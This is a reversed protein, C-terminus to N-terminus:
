DDVVEYDADVTNDSDEQQEGGPETGPQQAQEHLKAGVQQWIGALKQMSSSILDDDEGELASRM